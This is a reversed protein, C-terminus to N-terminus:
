VEAVPAALLPPQHLYRTARRKAAIDRYVREVQERSLDVAPAIDEAAIGNNHGYLCLDMQEHPLAFFFEDQGQPM